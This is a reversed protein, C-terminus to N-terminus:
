RRSHIFTLNKDIVSDNVVFVLYYLTNFKNSVKRATKERIHGTAHVATRETAMILAFDEM